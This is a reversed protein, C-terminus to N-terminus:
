HMHIVIYTLASILAGALGVILGIGTKVLFTQISNLQEKFEVRDQAASKFNVLATERLRDMASRQLDWHGTCDKKHQDFDAMVREAIRYAMMAIDHATGNPEAIVRSTTDAM